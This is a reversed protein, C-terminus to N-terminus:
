CRDSPKSTLDRFGSRSDRGVANMLTSSAIDRLQQKGATQPASPKLTKQRGRARDLQYPLALPLQMSQRKRADTVCSFGCIGFTAKVRDFPFNDSMVPLLM